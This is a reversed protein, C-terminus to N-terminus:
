YQIQEIDEERIIEQPIEEDCEDEIRKPEYFYM